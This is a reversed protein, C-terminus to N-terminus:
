KQGKNWFFIHRTFIQLIKLGLHRFSFASNHKQILELYHAKLDHACGFMWVGMWVGMFVDVCVGEGGLM